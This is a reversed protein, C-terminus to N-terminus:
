RVSIEVRRNRPEPAEDATQILLEGEGHSTIAIAASELGAQVLLDRVAIARKMGLEFNATTTGTTDTHGVVIVDPVANEKVTTLIDPLMARSEDTLDDANFKFYLTFHRPPAPLASLASGFMQTVEAASLIRPPAPARNTVVTTAEREATLNVSGSPNSVTARGVVGSESDALLAVTERVPVTPGSVRQPGCAAALAAALTVLSLAVLRADTM